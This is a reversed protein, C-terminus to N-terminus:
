CWGSPHAAPWVHHVSRAFPTCVPHLRPLVWLPRFACVWDVISTSRTMAYRVSASHWECVLSSHQPICHKHFLILPAARNRRRACQRLRSRPWTPECSRPSSWCCGSFLTISNKQPSMEQSVVDLAKKREREGHYTQQTKKYTCKKNASGTASNAETTMLDSFLPM